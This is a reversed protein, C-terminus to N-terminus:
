HIDLTVPQVFWNVLTSLKAILTLRDAIERSILIFDSPVNPVNEV